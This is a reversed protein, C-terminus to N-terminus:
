DAKEQQKSIQQLRLLAALTDREVRLARLIPVAEAITRRLKHTTICRWRMKRPNEYRVAHSRDLLCQTLDPDAFHGGNRVLRIQESEPLASLEPL